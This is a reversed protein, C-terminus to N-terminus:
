LRRARSWRRVENTGHGLQHISVFVNPDWVVVKITLTAEITRGAFNYDFRGVGAQQFFILHATPASVVNAAEFGSAVFIQSGIHSHVGVLRLHPDDLVRGAATMARGSALSFGFKQDEHATAIFEHTHAEVGVTIRVLVDAVIVADDAIALLRELLPTARRPESKLFLESARLLAAARADM